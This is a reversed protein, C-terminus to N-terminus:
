RFGWEEFGLVPGPSLSHAQRRARLTYRELTLPRWTDGKSGRHGRNAVGSRTGLVIRERHAGCLDAGFHPFIGWELRAPIAVAALGLVGGREGRYLLDGRDPADEM